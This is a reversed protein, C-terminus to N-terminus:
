AHVARSQACWLAPAAARDQVTPAVCVLQYGVGRAAQIRVAGHQIKRRLRYICVEICNVTVEDGSQFIRDILQSKSVFRGARQLLVAFLALERETLSVEADDVCATRSAPDYSLPGYRILGGGAGLARRSWADVRAVVEDVSVPSPLCEDAGHRLAMVREDASSTGALALLHVSGDLHRCRAILALGERDGSELDLVILDQGLIAAPGLRGIEEFHTVAHGVRCLASCIARGLDPDDGIVLIRM